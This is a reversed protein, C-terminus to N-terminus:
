EGVSRIPYGLDVLVRAVHEIEDHSWGDNPATPDGDLIRFIADCAQRYRCPTAKGAPDAGWAARIAEAQSSYSGDGPVRSVHALLSRLVWYSPQEGLTTIECVAVGEPEGVDLWAGLAAEEASQYEDTEESSLRPCGTHRWQHGNGHQSLYLEYGEPMPPVGPISPASM